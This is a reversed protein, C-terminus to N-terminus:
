NKTFSIAWMSGLKSNLLSKLKKGIKTNDIRQGLQGIPIVHNWSFGYKRFKLGSYDYKRLLNILERKSYTKTWRNFNGETKWASESFNFWIKDRDGAAARLTKIIKEVIFAPSFTVYLGISAKGKPKLVRAIEDFAINMYPTHHLVGNSYVFDVSENKIPLSEACGQMTIGNGKELKKVYDYSYKAANFSFDLGIYNAEYYTFLPAQMGAGCGIDLMTKGEVNSRRAEIVPMDKYMEYDKITNELLDEFEKKNLRTLYSHDGHGVRKEWGKDWFEQRKKFEGKASNDGTIFIPINEMIPWRTKCGVCEYYGATNNELDNKCGPCALIDKLCSM